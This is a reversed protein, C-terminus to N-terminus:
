LSASRGHQIAEVNLMNKRKCLDWDNLIGYISDDEDVDQDVVKMINEPSVDRHLLEARVWANKHGILTYETLVMRHQIDFSAKWRM